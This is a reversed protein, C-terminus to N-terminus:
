LEGMLERTREDRMEDILAASDEFLKGGREQIIEERVRRLREIAERTIPRGQRPPPNEEEPVEDELIQGVYESISLDKQLAALRIRRRLAPTVDITIRSRKRAANKGEEDHYDDMHQKEVAMNEGAKKSIPNDAHEILL